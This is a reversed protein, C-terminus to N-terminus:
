RSEPKGSSAHRVGYLREVWKGILDAEVNVLQGEVAYGLCTHELTLPIVAVDFRPGRPDVVTLSIGDLTISGKDILYRELDAGIEFTIVKGGDGVDSIALIRGRGDVHGSVMHGDLRDGVELARELNVRDGVELRGFWTRALTEASLDFAIGGASPDEAVTLCCGSVAVSQGLELEFPPAVVWARVGSGRREVRLVPVCAEILGTFMSALGHVLHM